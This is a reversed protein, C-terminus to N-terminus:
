LLAFKTIFAAAIIAVTPSVDRARGALVKIAVYSIFGFSIGHAYGSFTFPHHHRHRCGAHSRTLNDWEIEALGRSMLIAVYCLAPATAYAPVTGALPRVRHLM